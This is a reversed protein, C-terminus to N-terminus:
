LFSRRCTLTCHCQIPSRPFLSLQVAFETLIVSYARLNEGPRQDNRPGPDSFFHYPVWGLLGSLSHSLVASPMTSLKASLPCGMSRAVRARSLPSSFFLPSPTLDIWKLPLSSVMSNIRRVTIETLWSLILKCSESVSPLMQDERDYSLSTTSTQRIIQFVEVHVGSYPTKKHIDCKLSCNM